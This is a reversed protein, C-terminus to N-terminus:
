IRGSCGLCSSAAHLTRVLVSVYAVLHLNAGNDLLLNTVAVNGNFCAIHIPAMQRQLLFFTLDKDCGIHSVHNKLDILAGYELLMDANKTLHDFSAALHLATNGDQHLSILLALLPPPPLFYYQLCQQAHQHRHSRSRRSSPM